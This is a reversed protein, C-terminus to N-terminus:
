CKGATCVNTGMSTGGTVDTSNTIITDGGYGGAVGFYIGVGNATVLSNTIMGSGYLVIGLGNKTATARDIFTSDGWSDIGYNNGTVTVVEVFEASGKLFIGQPFGTVKGNRITINSNPSYVGTGFPFGDGAVWPGSITFGNLNLTVNDAFIQLADTNHASVVLDSDLEYSGSSCIQIPFGAHPCGKLGHESSTQDISVIAENAFASPVFALLGACVSLGVAFRARPRM